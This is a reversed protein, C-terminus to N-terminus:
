YFPVTGNDRYYKCIFCNKNCGLYHDYKNSCFEPLKYEHSLWFDELKDLENDDKYNYTFYSSRYRQIFDPHGLSSRCMPCRVTSSYASSLWKIKIYKFLCKKHYHHGCSTIFATSKTLIEDYCIPCEEGPKIYCKVKIDCCSDQDGITLPLVDQKLDSYCEDLINLNDNLNNCNYYHRSNREYLYFVDESTAM